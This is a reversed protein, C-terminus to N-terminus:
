KGVCAGTLQNWARNSIHTDKCKIWSMYCHYSIHLLRLSRFAFLFSPIPLLASALQVVSHASNM